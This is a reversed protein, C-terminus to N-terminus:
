PPSPEWNPDPFGNPQPNDPDSIDPEYGEVFSYRTIRVTTNKQYASYSGNYVAGILSQGFPYISSYQVASQKTYTSPDALLISTESFSESITELAGTYCYGAGPQQGSETTSTELWVKLYNTPPSTFSLRYEEAGYVSAYQRGHHTVGDPRPAPEEVRCNIGLTYLAAGGRGFDYVFDEYSFGYDAGYEDFYDRPSVWDGISSQWASIAKDKTMAPTVEGSLVISLSRTSDSNSIIDPADGPCDTSGPPLESQISISYDFSTNTYTGGGPLEYWVPYVNVSRQGTTCVGNICSTAEYTTKQPSPPGYTSIVYNPYPSETLEPFTSSGSYSYGGTRTVEEGYCNRDYSSGSASESRTATTYIKSQDRFGPFLGGPDGVGSGSRNELFLSFPISVCCACEVAKTVGDTTKTKLKSVGGTTKIGLIM